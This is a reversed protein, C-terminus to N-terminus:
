KVFCEKKHKKYDKVQCERSCYRVKECKSCLKLRKTSSGCFECDKTIKALIKNIRDLSKAKKDDNGGESRALFENIDTIGFTNEVGTITFDPKMDAGLKYRLMIVETFGHVAALLVPTYTGGDNTTSNVDAGFHALVRIVDVHGELAAFCVPTYGKNTATNINAGFHALVRIVDVHGRQAAICVPAWETHTAANVDAGLEALATIANIQGISAATSMPSRVLPLNVDGGLEDLLHIMVVDGWGAAAGILTIPMSLGPIEFTLNVDAGNRQCVSETLLEQLKPDPAPAVLMLHKHQLMVTESTGDSLQLDVPVRMVGTRLVAPGTVIGTLDNYAVATLSQTLVTVGIPFKTTIEAETHIM